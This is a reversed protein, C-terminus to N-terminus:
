RTASFNSSDDGVSGSVNRQRLRSRHLGLAFLQHIRVPLAPGICRAMSASCSSLGCNISICNAL